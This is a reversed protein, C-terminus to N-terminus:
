ITKLSTGVAVQESQDTMALLAAIRCDLSPLLLEPLRQIAVGRPECHRHLPALTLAAAPV